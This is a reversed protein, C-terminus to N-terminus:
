AQRLWGKEDERVIAYAAAAITVVWAAVMSWFLFNANLWALREPYVFDRAQGCQSFHQVYGGLSLTKWVAFSGYAPLAHRSVLSRPRLLFGSLFLLLIIANIACSAAWLQRVFANTGLVAVFSMYKTCGENAIAGGVFELFQVAVLCVVLGIIKLVTRM